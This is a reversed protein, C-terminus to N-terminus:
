RGDNVEAYVYSMSQAMATYARELQDIYAQQSDIYDILSMGLGAINRYSSVPGDLYEQLTAKIEEVDHATM